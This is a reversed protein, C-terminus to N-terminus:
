KPIIPAGRSDPEKECKPCYPIEEYMCEGFGSMPFPSDWVPHVIKAGMISSECTVCEYGNNIKKYIVESGRARLFEQGDKYAVEPKFTMGNEVDVVKFELGEVQQTTM